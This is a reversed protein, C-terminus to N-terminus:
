EVIMNIWVALLLIYRQYTGKKNWSTAIKKKTNPLQKKMSVAEKLTKKIDKQYKTFM